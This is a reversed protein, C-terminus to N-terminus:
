TWHVQSGVDRPAEPVPEGDEDGHQDHDTACRPDHQGRGTAM